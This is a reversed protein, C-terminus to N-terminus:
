DCTPRACYYDEVLFDCAKHAFFFSLPKSLGTGHLDVETFTLWADTCSCELDLCHRERVVFPHERSSFWVLNGLEM